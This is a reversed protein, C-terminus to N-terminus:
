RRQNIGYEFCSDAGRWGIRVSNFLEGGGEMDFMESVILPIVEKIADKVPVNELTFGSGEQSALFTDIMMETSTSPTIREKTLWWYGARRWADIGACVESTAAYPQEGFALQLEGGLDLSFQIDGPEPEGAREATYPTLRFFGEGVGNIMEATVVQANSGQPPQAELTDLLIRGVQYLAERAEQYTEPVPMAQVAPPEALVLALPM